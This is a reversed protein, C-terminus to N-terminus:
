PNPSEWGHVLARRGGTPTHILFTEPLWIVDISTETCTMQMSMGLWDPAADAGSVGGSAATGADSLASRLLQGSSPLPWNLAPLPTHAPPARDIQLAGGDLAARVWAFRVPSSAWIRGNHNRSMAWSDSRPAGSHPGTMAPNTSTATGTMTTETVSWAAHRLTETTPATVASGHPDPDSSASVGAVDVTAAAAVAVVSAAATVVATAGGVVGAVVTAGVVSGAVVDVGAVSGGTVSGGTSVIM